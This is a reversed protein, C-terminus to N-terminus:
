SCNGVMATESSSDRFTGPVCVSSVTIPPAGREVEAVFGTWTGGAITAQLMCTGQSRQVPVSKDDLPTCTTASQTQEACYSGKPVQRGGCTGTATYTTTQAADITTSYSCTSYTTPTQFGGDTICKEWTAFVPQAVLVAGTSLSAIAGIKFFVNKM